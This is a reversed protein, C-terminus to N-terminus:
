NGFAAGRHFKKKARPLHALSFLLHYCLCALTGPCAGFGGARIISRLCQACKVSCALRLSFAVSVQLFLLIKWFRMSICFRM